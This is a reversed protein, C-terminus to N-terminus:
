CKGGKKRASSYPAEPTARGGSKKGLNKKAHGGEIVGSSKKEALKFVAPNGEAVEGGDERHKGGKKASHHRARSM